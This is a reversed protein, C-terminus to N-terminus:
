SFVTSYYWLSKGSQDFSNSIWEKGFTFDIREGHRMVYLQRNGVPGVDKLVGASKCTSRSESSRSKEPARTQASNSQSPPTPSHTREFSSSSKTASAIHTNSEGGSPPTNKKTRKVVSTNLVSVNDYTHSPLRTIQRPPRMAQLCLCRQHNM